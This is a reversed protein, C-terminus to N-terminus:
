LATRGDKSRLSYQVRPDDLLVRVVELRGFCSARMLATDGDSDVLNPKIKRHALLLTAAEESSAMTLATRGYSDTANINIKPHALLLSLSAQKRWGATYVLPIDGDKDAANVLIGPLSLLDRMTSLSNRWTALILPTQGMHPTLHNPDGLHASGAVSLPFDFYAAMHLPELTDDISPLFRRSLGVPFACCGQLFQSLRDVLSTDGLSEHAHISWHDYAYALFSEANLAAILSSEDAPAKQQFGHETLLAMCVSAPLSHPYPSSESVLSKVVDKATYDI